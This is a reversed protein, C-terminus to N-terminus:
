YTWSSPDGADPEVRTGGNPYLKGSPNICKWYLPNVYAGIHVLWLIWQPEWGQLCWLRSKSPSGTISRTCARILRNQWEWYRYWNNKWHPVKSSSQQSLSLNTLDRAQVPHFLLWWLVKEATWWLVKEATWCCRFRAEALRTHQKCM